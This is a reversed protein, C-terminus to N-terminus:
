IVVLGPLMISVPLVLADLTDGDSNITEPVYGCYAPYTTATFLRRDLYVRSSKHDIEYKNRSGRPIEVVVHICDDPLPSTAMRWARMDAGKRWIEVLLTLEEISNRRMVLRGGYTKVIMLLKFISARRAPTSTMSKPKPLGSM